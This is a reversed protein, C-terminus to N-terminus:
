PRQAPRSPEQFSILKKMIPDVFLGIEREAEDLRQQLQDLDTVFADPSMNNPTYSLIYQGGDSQLDFILGYGEDNEGNVLADALVVDIGVLGEKGSLTWDMSARMEEDGGTYIAKSEVALGQESACAKVAQDVQQIFREIAPLLTKWATLYRDNTEPTHHM